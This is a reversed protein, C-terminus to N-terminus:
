NTPANAMARKLPEGNAPCDIVSAAAPLPAQASIELEATVPFHDSLDTVSIEPTAVFAADRAYIYDFTVDAYRGRGPSTVRNKAPVNAYGNAFGAAELLRLTKENIFRTQDVTTNFN